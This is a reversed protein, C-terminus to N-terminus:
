NCAPVFPNVSIGVSKWFIKNFNSLASKWYRRNCHGRAKRRFTKALEFYQSRTTSDWELYPHRHTNIRHAPLPRAVLQDGTWPTRGVTYQNLFQFLPRPRAFPNYFRLYVSLYIYISLHISLYTSTSLCIRYKLTRNCIKLWVDIYGTRWYHLLQKNVM